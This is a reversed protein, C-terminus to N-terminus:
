RTSWVPANACGFSGLGELRAIRARLMANERALSGAYARQVREGNVLACDLASLGWRTEWFLALLVARPVTDSARWRDVTRGSVGLHCGVADPRHAGPIDDVMVAFPPLAKPAKSHITHSM